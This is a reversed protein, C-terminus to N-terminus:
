NRTPLSFVQMKGSAYVVFIAPKLEEYTPQFRILDRNEQHERVM